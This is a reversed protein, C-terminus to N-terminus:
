MEYTPLACKLCCLRTYVPINVIPYSIYKYSLPICILLVRHVSLYLNPMMNQLMDRCIETALLAFYTCFLDYAIM